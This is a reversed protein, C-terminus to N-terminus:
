VVSLLNQIWKNFKPCKQLLTEMGIEKVIEVGMVNKNYGPILKKLRVSPATNPGNNIDEPNNYDDFIKKLNSYKIETREYIAEIGGISSFILSEFEHLQIYPIFNDFKNKQSHEIDSKMERELFLVQEYHSKTNDLQKFNPFDSPLRYFDFMTTVIVGKEYITNLIDKKIHSYKSVGGGSHKIKFCQLENYIGKSIFYPKLIENVFNEETEGEVIFVFRKM